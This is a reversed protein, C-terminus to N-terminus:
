LNLYFNASFYNCHQLLVSRSHDEWVRKSNNLILIKLKKAAQCASYLCGPQRDMHMDIKEMERTSPLSRTGARRPAPARSPLSPRVWGQFRLGKQYSPIQWWFQIKLFLNVSHWIQTQREFKCNQKFYLIIKKYSWADMRESHCIDGLGPYSHWYIAYGLSGPIAM